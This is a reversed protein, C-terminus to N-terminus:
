ILELQRARRVAESRHAASLKRYISRLHTKVTNVSLYMETAIEATSLMQSLHTLVEHERESLREVVLPTTQRASAQREPAPVPVPSVPSPELLARFARALEPERRLVQRIWTLEMAFFLRIHEQKALWLARELSQRGRADDGTTYSLRADVLWGALGIRQSVESDSEAIADLARRAAQLDGSVLWAYALAAAADPVTQPDARQAAAVAAQVDGASACVRSELIALERELWGPPSVSWGQRAQRIMESAAPPRGGALCRQAAIMCAVSSVLKDPCIRLASEALKLQSHAEQLDGRQLRVFALAVSAAPTIHGALDSSGNETAEAAEDAHGVACSLRGRLADVLALYGLCDAHEYAGVQASATAGAQFAAAAADLHGASLEVAGRGSLVQARIEPRRTLLEDPIHELLAEARETAAAAAESDGTRRSLALRILAAALRAPIEDDTPLRGLMSEAAALPTICAEGPTSSLETAALVLLPQPGTWALDRPMRRFAEALRQSGRPEILQDVVFEDVAMRAAFPWDGSETAYRVAENVHGNRQFWRAARRYLDALRNHSEIQLKLRLVSGFLSHYRYWGHGVPRIFANARALAPLTDAAQQNDVLERALDMSIYDLISTRLLLDRVSPPQANLVEDVLYGTIASNEADMEKVFQEPDQRGHLSLAALRVGAAWGETRSTLCDLAAASLTVGHHALLVASEPASFALDDARIETLEEALRYQHLPLLPDARSAIVLHLGTRANRLVYALGDLIAPETLLHVDDLVMVVPPDQEALVSALRLLFVHDVAGRTPGPLVRPVAVGARRLAAVVYSWFVSPRNDYDDLTIWVLACPYSSAAAWSAIAMTKGAGPPGTVTTMPGRVGEAILKEIRPRSVAWGPLGPKTIKSTLVPDDASGRRRPRPAGRADDRSM